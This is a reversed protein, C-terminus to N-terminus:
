KGIQHSNYYNFKRTKTIEQRNYLFTIFATPPALNKLRFIINILSLALRHYQILIERYFEKMTSAIPKAIGKKKMSENTLNSTQYFM